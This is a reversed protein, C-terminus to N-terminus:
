KLDEPEKEKTAEEELMFYNHSGKYNSGSKAGLVSNSIEDQLKAAVKKDRKGATVASNNYNKRKRGRKKAESEM